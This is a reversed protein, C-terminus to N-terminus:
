ILNPYITIILPLRSACRGSLVQALFLGVLVASVASQSFGAVIRAIQIPEFFLGCHNFWNLANEDTIVNVAMTIAENLADWIRPKASRLIEKLKSQCLEIPSLDPSYPPLFKVFAGVSEILAKTTEAYHVPLTDM